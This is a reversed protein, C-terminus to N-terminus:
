LLPEGRRKRGANVIQLAVGSLKKTSEDEGRRDRGARLIAAATTTAAAPEDIAARAAAASREMVSKSPLKGSAKIGAVALRKLQEISNTSM